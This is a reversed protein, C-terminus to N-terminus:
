NFRGLRHMSISKEKFIQVSLFYSMQMIKIQDIIEIIVKILLFSNSEAM